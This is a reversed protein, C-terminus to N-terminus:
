ESEKNWGGGAAKYLALWGLLQEAQVQHQVLGAALLSRRADELELLSGAGTEYRTTAAKQWTQYEALARATDEQRAQASAIRVLAQEVEQVALLTRDRFGAVAEDFRARAAEAVAKRRGGDFLPISLGPGFSWLAAGDSLGFARFQSFGISGLLQLRPYRDAEAVGVDASAAVLERELMAIDPRQMLVDAPIADLALPAAQPLQATRLALESRLVAENIATLAVLTKIRLECEAQQARLRAKAEALRARVLAADAPATFGAGVMRSILDLTRQQSSLDAELQRASVECLRLDVYTGVVEAALSVRAAHWGIAQADARAVAAERLRRNGGFLDIEWSADVSATAVSGVGPTPQLQRARSAVVSGQLQPQLVAGAARAQARAQEIRALAAAMRPAERQARDVLNALVPDDLRQWWRGIAGAHGHHPLAAQWAKAVTMPPAPDPVPLACGALALLLATSLAAAVRSPHRSLPILM